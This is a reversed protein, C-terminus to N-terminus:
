FFLLDAALYQSHSAMKIEGFALKGEGKGRNGYPERRKWPGHLGQGTSLTSRQEGLGRDPFGQSYRSEAPEPLGDVHSLKLGM